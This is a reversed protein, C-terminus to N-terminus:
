LTKLYNKWKNIFKEKSEIMMPNQKNSSQHHIFESNHITRFEYGAEKIRLCYDVDEYYFNFQEDLMGIKDFCEKKIVCRAFSVWHPPRTPNTLSFGSGDRRLVAGYDKGNANLQVSSILMLKNDHCLQDIHKELWSEKFEIDNNMLVFYDFEKYRMVVKNNSAAFGINEKNYTVNVYDNKEIKKLYEVTGDTSNNDTIHLVFPVHTHNYLSDITKKTYEIKNHTLISIAIKPNIM